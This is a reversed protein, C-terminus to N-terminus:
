ANARLAALEGPDKITGDTVKGNGDTTFTISGGGFGGSGGNDSVGFTDIPAGEPSKAGVANLLTVYLKNLPVNGGSSGTGSGASVEEGETKCAAESNGVALNQETSL